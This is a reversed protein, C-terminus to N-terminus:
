IVALNAAGDTRVPVVALRGSESVTTVLVMVIGRECLAIKQQDRQPNFKNTWVSTIAASSWIKATMPVDNM